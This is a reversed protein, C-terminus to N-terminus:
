HMVLVNAKSIFRPDVSGHADNRYTIGPSVVVMLRWHGTQLELGALDSNLAFHSQESFKIGCENFIFQFSLPSSNIQASVRLAKECIVGLDHQAGVRDVGAGMFPGAVDRFRAGHKAMQQQRVRPWSPSQMFAQFTAARQSVLAHREEPTLVADIPGRPLPKLNTFSV